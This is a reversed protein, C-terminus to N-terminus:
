PPRLESSIPAMAVSIVIIRAVIRPVDGAVEAADGVANMLREEVEEPGIRRHQQPDREARDERDAADTRQM